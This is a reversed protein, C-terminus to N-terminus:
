LEHRVMFHFSLLLMRDRGRCSDGRGTSLSAVNSHDWCRSEEARWSVLALPRLILEPVCGTLWCPLRKALHCWPLDHFTM